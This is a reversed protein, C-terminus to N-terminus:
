AVRARTRLLGMADFPAALQFATRLKYDGVLDREVPFGCDVLVDVDRRITRTTVSLRQALAHMEHIHGDSLVDLLSFLRRAATNRQGNM